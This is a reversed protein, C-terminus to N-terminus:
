ISDKSQQPFLKGVNIFNTKFLHLFSNVSAENSTLEKQKTFKEFNQMFGIANGRV